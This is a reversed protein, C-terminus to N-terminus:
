FLQHCFSFINSSTHSFHQAFYKWKFKLILSNLFNLNYLYFFVIACWSHVPLKWADLLGARSSSPEAKIERMWRALSWYVANEILKWIKLSNWLWDAQKLSLSVHSLSSHSGWAARSLGCFFVLHLCHSSSSVNALIWNVVAAWELEGRRSSTCSVFWYSAELQLETQSFQCYFYRKTWKSHFPQSMWDGEVYQRGTGCISAHSVDACEM